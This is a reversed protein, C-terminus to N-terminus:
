VLNEGESITRGDQELQKCGAVTKKSNKWENIKM